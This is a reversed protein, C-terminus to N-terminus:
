TLLRFANVRRLTRDFTVTYGCDASLALEGILYDQLQASGGRFADLARRVLPEREIHLHATALLQEIVAIIETKSLQYSRSLVWVLECLVILSVFILEGERECREFFREAVRTEAPSDAALFRVLVNTDVGTM